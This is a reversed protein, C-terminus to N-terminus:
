KLDTAENSWRTFASGYEVSVMGVAPMPVCGSVSMLAVDQSTPDSSAGKRLLLGGGGIIVTAHLPVEGALVMLTSFVGRVLVCRDGRCYREM